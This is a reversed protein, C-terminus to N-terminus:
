RRFGLKKAAKDRTMREHDSEVPVDDWSVSRRDDGPIRDHDTPSMSVPPLDPLGVPNDPNAEKVHPRRDVEREEALAEGYEDETGPWMRDDIVAELASPLTPMEDPGIAPSSVSGRQMARGRSHTPRSETLKQTHTPYIVDTDTEDINAEKYSETEIVVRGSYQEDEVRPANLDPMVADGPLQDIIQGIATPAAELVAIFPVAVLKDGDPEDAKRAAAVKLMTEVRLKASKVDAETADHAEHLAATELAHRSARLATVYKKSRDASSTLFDQLMAVPIAVQGFSLADCITQLEVFPNTLAEFLVGREDAQELIERCRQEKGPLPQSALNRVWAVSNTQTGTATTFGGAALSPLCEDVADTQTTTTTDRGTM